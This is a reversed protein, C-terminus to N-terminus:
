VPTFGFQDGVSKRFDDDSMRGYAPTKGEPVKASAGRVAATVAERDATAEPDPLKGHEQYFRQALEKVARQYTQPDAQRNQWAAQVRADSRAIDAIWGGVMADSYINP